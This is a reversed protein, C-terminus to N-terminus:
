GGSIACNEGGSRGEGISSGSRGDTVSARGRGGMVACGTVPVVGRVFIYGSRSLVLITDRGQGGNLVAIYGKLHASPVLPTTFGSFTM